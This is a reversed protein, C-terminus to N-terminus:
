SIPLKYYRKLLNIIYSTIMVTLFGIICGAMVSGFRMIPTMEQVSTFPQILVIVNAVVAVRAMDLINFIYCILITLIIGLLLTYFNTTHIQLCLIGVVSGIFNSKLRDISLKKSNTGEPSIVLVISLIAWLAEHKNYHEYLYYGFFLLGFFIFLGVITALLNRLFKM